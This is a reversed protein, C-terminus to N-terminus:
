RDIPTVLSVFAMLSGPQEVYDNIQVQECLNAKVIRQLTRLRIHVKSGDTYINARSGQM